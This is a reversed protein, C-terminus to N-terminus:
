TWAGGGGGGGGGGLISTGVPRESSQTRVVESLICTNGLDKWESSEM